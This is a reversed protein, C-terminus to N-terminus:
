FLSFKVSAVRTALTLNERREFLAAVEPDPRRSAEWVAHSEYWTNLLLRTISRGRDDVKREARFLGFVATAFDREFAPWASASLGVFEAVNADKVEFWRHTYIGTTRPLDTSGPKSTAALRHRDIRVVAPHSALAGIAAGRRPTVGHWRVLVALQQSSWGLLPSFVGIPEGGAARIAQVGSGRLHMAFSRQSLSRESPALEVFVYDYAAGGPSGRASTEAAAAAFPVCAAVSVTSALIERRKIM